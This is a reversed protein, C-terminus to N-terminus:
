RHLRWKSIQKETRRSNEPKKEDERKAASEQSMASAERPKEVLNEGELSYRRGRADLWDREVRLLGGCPNESHVLLGNVRAVQYKQGDVFVLRLMFGDPFSCLHGEEIQGQDSHLGSLRFLSRLEEDSFHLEQEVRARRSEEAQREKEEREERERRAADILVGGEYIYRRGTEDLWAAESLRLDETWERESVVVRGSFDMALHRKRDAFVEFFENGVSNKWIKGEKIVTGAPFFRAINDFKPAIVPAALSAKLKQMSDRFRAAEEKNEIYEKLVEGKEAKLKTQCDRLADIEKYKAYIEQKIGRRQSIDEELSIEQDLRGLLFVALAVAPNLALLAFALIKLEAGSRKESRIDSELEAETDKLSRIEDYLKSIEASNDKMLRSYRSLVQYSDGCLAVARRYAPLYDNVITNRYGAALKRGAEAAKEADQAKRGNEAIAKVISSCSLSRDISSGKVSYTRLQKKVGVVKKNKVIDNEVLVEGSFTIGVPKGGSDKKITCGINDKKLLEPLQGIDTASAVAAEIVPRIRRRLREDPEHIVAMGDEKTEEVTEETKGSPKGWAYGYKVTIDRAVGIGRYVLMDTDIRMGNNDVANALVHCHPNDVDKTLPHRVIIYQTNGFGLQELIEKASATMEEDSISEGPMWSISLHRLPKRVKLQMNAQFRFDRALQDIDVKYAGKEDTEHDLNSIGLIKVKDQEPKGLKFVYKLAGSFGNGSRFKIIM